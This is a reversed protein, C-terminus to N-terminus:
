HCPERPSSCRPCLASSFERASVWQYGRAGCPSLAAVLFCFYSFILSFFIAVGISSSHLFKGVSNVV